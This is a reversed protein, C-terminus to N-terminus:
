DKAPGTANGSLLHKVRDVYKTDVLATVRDGPQLVTDGHPIILGRGRRVSVIVCEYPLSLERIQRGAAPSSPTVETEVFQTGTVNGLRLRDMRHQLELRRSIAINYARIIDGRRVMGLLRKPDDRAVVPLRGIDRVGMRKLVVWVPEDPYAVIIERTCIDRVKLDSSPHATTAREFDQLTVIGYLKGDKDLVPFGHHHTRAFADALESITMDASVTDPNSTMVEAVTIGQMIDIDRGYWLRIGRRTLKMTYISEHELHQALLTAIVTSLMLPLIIRYDGTMEFLIIIATIPARAGAAFVAAMGVLGYAGPTATIAPFLWHVLAGFTGGLMAGMFLSPAFVGGSGGSGLTLSTALVKAVLLALATTLVIENRLVAEITEYGVGFIQPAFFGLIGVGLGGIAPKVYEPLDLADFVDELGYLLKIFAVGVPAALFGLIVYFLLEWPSKMAYPPVAFAPTNGLFIRAIVSATVSAVVVASFNRVTFEGLIIELAFLVGAVPANFTAAIGGGAGCAVLMRVRDESMRLAQGITSGLASGIQVIPGERGASGGTGICISSALAKIVVVVPRIRGGRLAVAEMVEPVGHGKAERAFYYVLPGVIMGGIAPILIVYYHGFSGFVRQSQDFALTTFFNILWRFLIAGFGAGIGVILATGILITAEPPQLRDLGVSISAIWREVLVSLARRASIDSYGTTRSM